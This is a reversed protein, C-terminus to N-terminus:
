WRIKTNEASGVSIITVHFQHVILLVLMVQDCSASARAAAGLELQEAFHSLNVLMSCCKRSQFYCRKQAKESVVQFAICVFHIDQKPCCPGINDAPSAKVEVSVFFGLVYVLQMVALPWLPSFEELAQSPQAPSPGPTM